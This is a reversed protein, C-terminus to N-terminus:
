RGAGVAIMDLTMTREAKGVGHVMCKSAAPANGLEYRWLRVRDMGAASGDDVVYYTAKAMHRLDSGTQALIAELQDFVALAEEMRHGTPQKVFLSSIYIQRDSRVLAVRSFLQSPRVDPPDYYQVKPASEGTPPLQAVLEIEVPPGALWEVFVVPPMMQGPFYEKLVRRVEDAASAPRLFVKLRVVHAPTLKFTDLTKWLGSMSRDVASRTLAPEAPVGSLYAIGGPPLVAADACDADGAVAEVRHLAVTEGPEAAVAVADVAVLAGRRPMPTLVSTIAPRVAPERRAALQERVRDVTSPAMAYVNLRVLQGLSSGSDGLVADLNNLVQEVQKDVSGAGVMRGERDVPVLQRTHVLPLGEVIVAQSMGAPADLPLYEISASAAEKGSAEQAPEDEAEPCNALGVCGSLLLALAVSRWTMLTNRTSNDAL